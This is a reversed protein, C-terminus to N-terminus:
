GEVSPVPPVEPSMEPQAEKSAEIAGCGVWRQFSRIAKGLATGSRKV